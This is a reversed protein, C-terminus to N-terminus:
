KKKSRKKVPKTYLGMVANEQASTLTYEVNNLKYAPLIHLWYGLWYSEQETPWEVEPDDLDQLMRNVWEEIKSVETKFIFATTDFKPKSTVSMSKNTDAKKM